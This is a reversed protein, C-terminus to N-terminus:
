QLSDTQCTKSSAWIVIPTITIEKNEKWSYAVEHAPNKKSDIHVFECPLAIQLNYVKLVSERIHDERINWERNLWKVANLSDTYIIAHERTLCMGTELGKQIAFLEAENILKHTFDVYGRALEEGPMRKTYRGNEYIDMEHAACIVWACRGPGYKGDYMSADTYILITKGKRSGFDTM